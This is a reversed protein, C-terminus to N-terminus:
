WYKKGLLRECAAEMYEIKEKQQPFSKMYELGSGYNGDYFDENGMFAEVITARDEKSATAGYLRSLFVDEKDGYYSDRCNELYAGSKVLEEYKDTDNLYAFGEPNFERWAAENFVNPDLSELLAEVAHWLEHHVVVTDILDTDIVVNIWCGTSVCEGSPVLSGFENKLNEVFVFRIGGKGRYDKFLDFFWDPYAVLNNRLINITRKVLMAQESESRGSDELSEATYIYSVTEGKIENGMLIKLGFSEELLDAEKRIESLHSGAKQKETGIEGTDEAGDYKGIFNLEAPCIEYLANKYEGDYIRAGVLWHGTAKNYSVAPENTDEFAVGM